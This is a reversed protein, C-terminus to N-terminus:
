DITLNFIPGFTQRSRVIVLNYVIKAFQPIYNSTLDLYRKVM